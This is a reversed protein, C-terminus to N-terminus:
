LSLGAPPPRRLGVVAHSRRCHLFTEDYLAKKSTMAVVPSSSHLKIFTPNARESLNSSGVRPNSTRQLGNSKLLKAARHQAPTAALNM